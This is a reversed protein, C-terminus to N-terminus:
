IIFEDTNRCSKNQIGFSASLIHFFNPLINPRGARCSIMTCQPVSDARFAGGLVNVSEYVRNIGFVSGERLEIFRVGLDM